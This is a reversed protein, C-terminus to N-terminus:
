DFLHLQPDEVVPACPYERADYNFGREATRIRHCNACVVECKTIEALIEDLSRGSIVGAAVTFRKVAGPLHDFDLARPNANYGCDVCGSRLKIEEVVAQRERYRARMRVRRCEKCQRSSRGPGYEPYFEVEPSSRGCVTCRGPPVLRRHGNSHPM